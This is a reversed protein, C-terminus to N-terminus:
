ATPYREPVSLEYKGEPGYMCFHYHQLFSKGLLILPVDDPGSHVTDIIAAVQVEHMQKLIPVSVIADYIYGRQKHGPTNIDRRGVRRLGLKQAVVLPIVVLTAGTDLIGEGEFQNPNTTGFSSPSEIIVDIRPQSLPITKRDSDLM